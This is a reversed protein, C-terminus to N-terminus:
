QEFGASAAEHAIKWVGSEKVWLITVALMYNFVNGNIATIRLKGSALTIATDSSLIHVKIEQVDLKEEKRGKFDIALKQLIAATTTYCRGDANIGILKDRSWFKLLAETDMKTHTNLYQITQDKLSKEIDAKQTDTITQAQIPLAFLLLMFGVALAITRM